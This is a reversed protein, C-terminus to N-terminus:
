YTRKSIPHCESLRVKKGPQERRLLASSKKALAKAFPSLRERQATLSVVFMVLSAVSLAWALFEGLSEVAL